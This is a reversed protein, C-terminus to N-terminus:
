HCLLQKVFKNPRHDNLFEKFSNENCVISEYNNIVEAIEISSIERLCHGMEYKRILEGLLGISPGIVPTNANIAHGLIGSSGESNKYPILVYDCLEFLGAMKGNSIYENDWIVHVNTKVNAREVMAELTSRFKPCQARGAILLVINEQIDKTVYDAAGVIELVGKRDSLGGFHLFVKTNERLMYGKRLDCSTDVELNPIPDALYKFVNNKKFQRNLEYVSKHDNLLFVSDLRKNRMCLLLPFYRRLYFYLSKFSNITMNTFQMFLIGRIKYSTKRLGIAIQFVNMHMLYCIDIKLKKAYKDVIKFNNFSRLFRNSVILKEPEEIEVEIFHINKHNKVENYIGSCVKKFNENVVFYYTDEYSNLDKLYEVIHNLYESHHGLIKHDYVLINM